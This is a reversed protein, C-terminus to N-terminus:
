KKFMGLPMVVAGGQVNMLEHVKKTVSNFIARCHEFMTYEKM